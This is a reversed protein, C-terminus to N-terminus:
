FGRKIENQICKFLVQITESIMKKTQSDMNQISKIMEIVDINQRFDKPNEYDSFISYITDIVQKRTNVDISKLWKSLTSQTHKSLQDNQELYIFDGNEVCWTFPDHQLISIADSQIIQYNNTEELLLGIVSSQPITKFVKKDTQYPTLFGPGDHNYICFISNQTYIGAYLALNAGKSHGGLILKHKTKYNNVYNLASIQSPINEQFCLNFDEKWGIITDDTGRFSVYSTGDELVIEMAAFQQEAETVIDNVYNRVVCKGFRVSKAMEMMMFPALRIFSKDAELEKMTHLKMFEKTLKKLGIGKQKTVASIGDLNVYSFCALILNDVENFQSQEFSLDGRWSIYDMINGM